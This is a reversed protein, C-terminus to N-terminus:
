EREASQKMSGGIAHSWDRDTFGEADFSWAEDFLERLVAVEDPCVADRGVLRIVPSEPDEHSKATAWERRM